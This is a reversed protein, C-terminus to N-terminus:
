PATKPRNQEVAGRKRFITSCCQPLSPGKPHQKPAPINWWEEKLLLQPVVNPSLLVRPEVFYTKAWVAGLSKVKVRNNMNREVDQDQGGNM